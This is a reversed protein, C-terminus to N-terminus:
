RGNPSTGAEEYIRYCNRGAQKATYMAIDAKKMLDIADDTGNVDHIAIGISMTVNLVHEGVQVPKGIAEIIKDAVITTALPYAIEALIIVFEDGGQRSVTDGARVCAKLRAAVEILLSDGVDHGLTDNIQKFRDLDLFMVAMRRVFRRSHALGSNLRDLLMRRNPLHTLPDFFVLENIRAENAKRESIDQNTGTIRTARGSQDRDVVKGRSMIWIWDGSSNRMRFECEFSATDGKLHTYLLTRFKQVDDPHLNEFFTEPTAEVEDPAYGFMTILRQDHTFKGSPLDLDWMGLGAGALALEMRQESQAISQELYHRETVDIYCWLSEGTAQDLAAGSIDVWIHIGDRRVYEIQSRFTVGEAMQPYAAVGLNLYAEESPYHQRISAGPAEGSAYGLMKEFAPNAWIIIRDRLRAIGVLDNELMAKQEALLQELQRQNRKRETIDRSSAYLHRNGGLAIQKANIEVDFLSGDQRRHTTEFSAAERILSHVKEVLEDRSFQADWDRVNLKAAEETTYGLMAAFSLSFQVINGDEDLVHIGDSANDLLAQLRESASKRESIDQIQSVFHLPAGDQNRVLSVSLLIWVVAGSKHVYRKEMHYTEISGALINQVHVLDVALDDPHSISQFDTTLLEEESYGLMKCLASNVKIFRGATSVLAMGHAATEFAGRFRRESEILAAEARNRATVDHMVALSKVVQLGGNREGIASLLMDLIRGDKTVFQYPVNVCSGTRFFEPLVHEKAYRQSEPTLFDSSPRGIVEDRSYGFIQLWYDSVSTLKGDQDISHMICPTKNYLGRYRKEGDALKMQMRGSVLIPLGIGLALNIGIGFIFSLTQIPNALAMFNQNEVTMQASIVARALLFIATCLFPVAVLWRALRDRSDGGRVLIRFNAFLLISTLASMIVIRAMLNPTWYTFYSFSVAGVVAPAWHWASQSTLGRFHRSGLYLFTSGAVITTNAIVISLLDPVVGRFAFLVYACGNATTGLAWLQLCSERSIIKSVFQLGVALLVSTIMAVFSLTHIDLSFM